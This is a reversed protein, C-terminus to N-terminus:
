DRCQGQKAVSSPMGQVPWAKGHHEANRASAMSQWAARYEKCQGHKTVRSLMGQLLWATGHQEPFVVLGHCICFLSLALLGDAGGKVDYSRSLLQAATLTHERINPALM